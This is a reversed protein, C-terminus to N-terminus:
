NFSSLSNPPSILPLSLPPLPTSWGQVILNASVAEHTGIDNSVNNVAVCTYSLEESKLLSCLTLRSVTVPRGDDRTDNYSSIDIGCSVPCLSGNIRDCEVDTANSSGGIDRCVSPGRNLPCQDTLNVLRNTHGPITSLFSALEGNTLFSDGDGINNTVNLPGPVWYLTPLPVGFSTCEITFSDSENRTYSDQSLPFM